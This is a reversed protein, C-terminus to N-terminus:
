SPRIRSLVSDVARYIELDDGFVFIRVLGWVTMGLVALMFGYTPIAFVSGSERVGRLNMAMLLLILGAAILGEHGSIWPLLAKANQVGSSTSVYRFLFDPTSPNDPSDLSKRSKSFAAPLPSSLAIRAM